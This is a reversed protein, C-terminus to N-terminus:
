RKSKEEKSCSSSSASAANLWFCARCFAFSTPGNDEKMDESYTSYAAEEQRVEEGGDIEKERERGEV